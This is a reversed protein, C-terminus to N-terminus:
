HGIRDQGSTNAAVFTQFYRYRQVPSGSCVAHTVPAAEAALKSPALGYKARFARTFQSASVFGLAYGVDSVRSKGPATLLRRATQLRMTRIRQSVGGEDAFLRYLTARSIGFTRAIEAPRLHPDSLHETIHLEINRRLQTQSPGQQSSGQGLSLSLMELLVAQLRPDRAPSTITAGILSRLHVAFPTDITRAHLGDPEIGAKVLDQRSFSINVMRNPSSRLKVAERRDLLVMKGSGLSLTREGAELRYEGSEVLMLAVDDQGKSAALKATREHDAAGYSGWHFLTNGILATRIDADFSAEDGRPETVYLISLMDRYLDFSDAHAVTKGDIRLTM